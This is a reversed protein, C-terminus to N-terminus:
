RSYINSASHRRVYRWVADRWDPQLAALVSKEDYRIRELLHKGTSSYNSCTELLSMLMELSNACRIFEVVPWDNKEFLDILGRRLRECKDWNRYRSLHPLHDGGKNIADGCIMGVINAIGGPEVIVDRCVMGHLHLVGGKKVIANGTIMGHLKLECSIEIDGELKGHATIM